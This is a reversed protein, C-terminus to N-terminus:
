QATYSGSIPGSLTTLPSTLSLSGIITGVTPVGAQPSLTVTLSGSTIAYTDGNPKLDEMISDTGIKLGTFTFTLGDVSASTWKAIFYLESAGSVVGM